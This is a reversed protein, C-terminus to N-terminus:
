CSGLGLVLEHLPVSFHVRDGAVGIGNNGIAGAIGACHTGHGLYDTPNDDITTYDEGPYLILGEALYEATDIDVFDKGPHGASDHWINGALDPHTYAVGIDVIAIVVSDNGREMDWGLEAQTHHHSWQEPYLTDNPVFSTTAIYNPEAYEIDSDKKLEECAAKVLKDTKLIYVPLLDVEKADQPLKRISKTAKSELQAQLANQSLNEAELRQHLDKFVPKEDRLRYKTKLGSLTKEHKAKRTSYRESFLKQPDEKEKLKVIVEHPVFRPTQGKDTTIEISPNPGSNIFNEAVNVQSSAPFLMALTMGIVAVFSGLWQRIIMKKMKGQREKM